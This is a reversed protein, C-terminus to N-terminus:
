PMLDELRQGILEMCLKNLTVIDGGTQAHTLLMKILGQVPIVTRVPPLYIDYLCPQRPFAPAGAQVISQPPPLLWAQTLTYGSALMNIAEEQSLGFGAAHPVIHIRSQELVQDGKPLIEGSETCLEMDILPQTPAAQGTAVQALQAFLNEPINM